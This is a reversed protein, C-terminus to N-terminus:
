RKVDRIEHLAVTLKDNALARLTSVERLLEATPPKGAKAEHREWTQALKAERDRAM